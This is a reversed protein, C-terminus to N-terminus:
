RSDLHADAPMGPRLAGEGEGLDVTVAFVQKVREDKTQVNKPTFEANSAIRSVKGTFARGPYADVGITAVQGLALEGLDTEPVYITLELSSLDEMVALGTGPGALEGQEALRMTVVGSIPATVNCDAIAKEVIRAAWEAQELRATAARLEEPRAASELKKLAQVAQRSQADAIALRADSDDKQRQTASGSALLNAMRTADSRALRLAEASSDLAAQAQALDESRAGGLLLDLQARALEVGSRAQGLQLDLVSHDIRAVIEGKALAVGEKADMSLILGSSASAVRVETAEITGSAKIGPEKPACSFTALALAAAAALIYNNNM